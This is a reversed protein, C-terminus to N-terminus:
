DVVIGIKDHLLERVRCQYRYTQVSCVADEDYKDRETSYFLLNNLSIRKSYGM